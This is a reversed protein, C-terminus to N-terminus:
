VPQERPRPQEAVGGSGAAHQSVAAAPGFDAGRVHDKRGHVIEKEVLWLMPSQFPAPTMAAIARLLSQADSGLFVGPFQRWLLLAAVSATSGSAVLVLIPSTQMERLWSALRWTLIGIAVALLLGPVHAAAFTRWNLETLRLSLHAMVLFNCAVAAVVGVAVGGVGWNQGIFAMAAIAAAYLGQRWARAYVAGTARAVSDSLKYSTRFLIGVALIQLPVVAGSWPGGLLVEIIEPTLLSVVISMPLTLVACISVASRYARALRAPELQVLAMTPFLVRDLVQGVLIAPAAVLQYVLVYVGLTQAGLWRGVIVKDAQSALYNGIRALTFGGGFYLLEGITRLDLQPRMSHPQGAQLLIMRLLSHILLAGVLAWVGFGLWALLPGAVVFGATFAGAHVAALWRFRLARQALAYAVMAFGQCVFVVSTGRVVPTLEPLRFLAALVPAGAWVLGAVILSFMVSLTFGVRVHRQELEPRQVIAPAVGLGSFITSLGVIVMTAAFLGFEDPALLRALVMLAIAQLLSEAGVSLGTWLVGAISRKTLGRHVDSV